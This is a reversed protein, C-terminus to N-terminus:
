CSEMSQWIKWTLVRLTKETGESVVFVAQVKQQRRDCVNSERLGASTIDLHRILAAYLSTIWHSLSSICTVVSSPGYEQYSERHPGLPCTRYLFLSFNLHGVQDNICIDTKRVCGQTNRASHLCFTQIAPFLLHQLCLIGRM